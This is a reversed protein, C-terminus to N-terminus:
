LMECRFKPINSITRHEKLSHHFKQRSKNLDFNQNIPSHDILEIMCTLHGCDQHMYKGLCMCPIRTNAPIFINQTLVVNASGMPEYDNNVISQYRSITYILENLNSM